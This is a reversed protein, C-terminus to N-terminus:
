GAGGRRWAQGGDAYRLAKGGVGLEVGLPIQELGVADPLLPVYTHHEGRGALGSSRM